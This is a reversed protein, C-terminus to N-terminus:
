EHDEDTRRSETVMTRAAALTEWYERDSRPDGVPKWPSEGRAHAAAAAQRLRIGLARLQSATRIRREFEAGSIM